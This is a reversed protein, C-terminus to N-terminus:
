VQKSHFLRQRLNKSVQRKNIKFYDPLTAWDCITFDAQDAKQQSKSKLLGEAILASEIQEFNLDM